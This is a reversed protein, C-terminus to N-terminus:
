REKREACVVCWTSYIRVRICIYQAAAAAVRARAVVLIVVVVNFVSISISIIIIFIISTATAAVIAKVSVVQHTRRNGGRRVHCLQVGWRGHTMGTKDAKDM